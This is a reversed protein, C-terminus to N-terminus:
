RYAILLRNLVAYSKFMESVNFFAFSCQSFARTVSVRSDDATSVGGAPNRGLFREFTCCLGTCLFFRASGLVLASSDDSASPCNLLRPVRRATTRACCEKFKSPLNM